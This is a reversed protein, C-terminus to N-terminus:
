QDSKLSVGPDQEIPEPQEPVDDVDIDPYYSEDAAALRAREEEPHLVGSEIYVAAADADIKRVEALEKEDMQWLPEFDFAVDPDIDGFLSLQIIDICRKLPDAVINEQNSHVADYFVRIEGDSSANLGSPTIGLLVVLPLGSVSAMQEQAQAQLADLTSLPTAINFFEEPPTNAGDGKDLLMMGRNDRMANFISARSDLDDGGGGSLMQSLDTKVGVVSFSHLLDSVSQRTRLWNDVYPRAIQTLSLGGFAYTPKLIDPLPRSVITMLRSAHVAKGMVYWSQPKYFDDALPDNSNYNAPYTWYPEITRFGRLSGKEIFKPDLTLPTNRDEPDVGLDPFIQARGFYCDLEIATRFVSQLKVRNMEAAMMGLRTKDQGTLRIWKRTMERAWKEAMNRYESRQALQALYPFGLFGIDTAIPALQGYYNIDVFPAEDMAMGAPAVGRPMQPLAFTATPPEAQTRGFRNLAMASIKQTRKVEPTVRPM